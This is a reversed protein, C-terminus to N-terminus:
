NIKGQLIIAKCYQTPKQWMHVSDAMPISESLHSLIPTRETKFQRGVEWGMGGKWTTVPVLNSGRTDYLLNGSAIEKVYPLVYAEMGSDQNMGGEGEWVTDVLRNETDVDGSIGQLFTWRYWRELIWKFKNIYPTQKESQSCESYYSRPEDM